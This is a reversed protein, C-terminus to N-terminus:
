ECGAVRDRATWTGCRDIGGGGGVRDAGAQGTVRDKGAGGKVTDRGEGGFLSDRGGQGFLSDAGGQGKAKDRGSGGLITDGGGLGCVLDHGGASLILDPGPTGVIVDRAASGGVPGAGPRALLTAAEGFCKPVRPANTFEDAGIDPAPGQFRADGDIDGDGSVGKGGRDITWSGRRQHVDGAAPDVLLPPLTLNTDSGPDSVSGKAAESESDYASFSMDAIAAAGAGDGIASVDSGSGSAIVNLGDVTVSGGSGSAASRIGTSAPGSAFATVNRLLSAADVGPAVTSSSDLGIGAPGTAICASNQLLPPAASNAVLYCGSAGPAAAISIVRRASTGAGVILGIGFASTRLEINELSAGPASLVLALGSGSDIVPRTPAVAGRIAITDVAILPDSGAAYTGPLLIVEDGDVVEPAEVATHLDCPLVASCATGTGGPAAVRVAGAAATPALLLLLGTLAAAWISSRAIM